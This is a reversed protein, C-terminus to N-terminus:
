FGRVMFNISTASHAWWTIESDDYSEHKRSLQSLGLPKIHNILFFPQFKSCMGSPALKKLCYPLLAVLCWPMIVNSVKTDM